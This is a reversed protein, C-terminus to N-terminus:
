QKRVWIIFAVAAILFIALIITDAAMLEDVAADSVGVVKAQRDTRAEAPTYIGSAYDSDIHPLPHAALDRVVLDTSPDAAQLKHALDSAIRTSHSAPGRPSSTVLLISM